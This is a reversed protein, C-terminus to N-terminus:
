PRFRRSGFHGGCSIGTLMLALSSLGSKQANMRPTMRRWDKDGRKRPREQSLKRPALSKRKRDQKLDEAIGECVDEFKVTEAVDASM